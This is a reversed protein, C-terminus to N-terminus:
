PCSESRLEMNATCAVLQLEWYPDLKPTQKSAVKQNRHKKTEHCLTSVVPWQGIEVVTLFGADMCFKSLRDQQSSKEMREGYRQMVLEKDAPDDNVPINTKIVSPVFSSSSQEGVVPTGAHFSEYEECTEAVAGYLCLQNVSITTRFVTTRAPM